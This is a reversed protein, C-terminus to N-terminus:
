MLLDCIENMEQLIWLVFGAILQGICVDLLLQACFAFDRLASEIEVCVHDKGPRKVELINWSVRSSHRWNELKFLSLSMVLRNKTCSLRANHLRNKKSPCVTCHTTWIIGAEEMRSLVSVHLSIGLFV